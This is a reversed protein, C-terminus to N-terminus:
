SWQANHGQAQWVGHMSHKSASIFQDTWSDKNTHSNKEWPCLTTYSMMEERAPNCVATMFSAGPITCHVVWVDMHTVKRPM